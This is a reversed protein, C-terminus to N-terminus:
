SLQICATLKIKKVEEGERGRGGGAETEHMDVSLEKTQSWFLCNLFVIVLVVNIINGTPISSPQM